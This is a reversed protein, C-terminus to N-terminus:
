NPGEYDEDKQVYCRRKPTVCKRVWPCVYKLLLYLVGSFMIIVSLGTVVCFQLLAYSTIVWVGLLTTGIIFSMLMVLVGVVTSGVVNEWEVESLDFLLAKRIMNM